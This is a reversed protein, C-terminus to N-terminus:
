ESRSAQATNGHSGQNKRAGNPATENGYPASPDARDITPSHVADLVFTGSGPDYRGGASRVHYDGGIPDAFLPDAYLNGTGPWPDTSLTWDVFLASTGDVYFDDGNGWLISDRVQASSSGEVYVANGGNRSSEEDVSYLPCSDALTSSVIVVHSGTTDEGDVYVASGGREPCGNAAVEVNVLLAQAGNDVFVGGGISPAENGSVVTRALTLFSGVSHVYVGGGWGFDGGAAIENGTVRSDSLELAPGELFVGGGHDGDALNGEIRSARIVIVDGSAAIGAGRDARNARVLCGVISAAGGSIAIGGGRAFDGSHRADNDEITARSITVDADAVYIGGGEWRGAGDDHGRGGTVRVGDVISLGTAILALTAAEGAGQLHTVNTTPDRSSFDGAGPFGGLVDVAVGTITVNEAYTGGAIQIVDGSKAADVASQVTDFPDAATGDGGAAAGDDVCLVARGSVVGTCSSPPPPPPADPAFFADPLRPADFPPPELGDPLTRQDPLPLTDPPIRGDPRADGPEDGDRPAGDAGAGDGGAASDDGCACISSLALAVLARRV